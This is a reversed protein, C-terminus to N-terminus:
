KPKAELARKILEDLGDAVRSARIIRAWGASEQRKHQLEPARSAEFKLAERPDDYNDDEVRHTM